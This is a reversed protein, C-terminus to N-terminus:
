LATPEEITAVLALEEAVSWAAEAGRSSGGSGRRKEEQVVVGRLIFIL